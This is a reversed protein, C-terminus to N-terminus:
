KQLRWYAEKYAVKLISITESIDRGLGPESCYM